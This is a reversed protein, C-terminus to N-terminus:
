ELCLFFKMRGWRKETEQISYMVSVLYNCDNIFFNSRMLKFIKPHNFKCDSLFKLVIEPCKLIDECKLQHLVKVM